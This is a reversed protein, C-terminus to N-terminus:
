GETPLTLIIGKKCISSSILKVQMYLVLANGDMHKKKILGHALFCKSSTHRGPLSKFHAQQTVANACAGIDHNFYAIRIVLM